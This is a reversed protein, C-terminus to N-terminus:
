WRGSAGGGGSRGGGFSSSSSSSRSKARAEKFSPIVYTSREAWDCSRCSLVQEGSGRSAETAAVRTHRAKALGRTGCKPCRRFRHRTMVGAVIVWPLTVLALIAAIFATEGGSRSRQPPAGGGHHAEAIDRITALTGTEIGGGYDGNRFAPLFDREVIRAAAADWDRGYAMGLEIRMERDEPLVLVLIGDNRTADGVGWTNFLATAFDELRVGPWHDAKRAMTVVTMQIGTDRELAALREVLRAAREPELLGAYDNVTTSLPQPFEQAAAPLALALLCVFAVLRLM